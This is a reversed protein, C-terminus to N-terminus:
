RRGGGGNEPLALCAASGALVGICVAGALWLVVNVAQAGAFIRTFAYAALALSALTCLLHLPGAGYARRPSM